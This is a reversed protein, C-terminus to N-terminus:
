SFLHNWQPDIVQPLIKKIFRWRKGVPHPLVFLEQYQSINKPFQLLFRQFFSAPTHTFTSLLYAAGARELIRRVQGQAPWAAKPTEYKGLLLPATKVAFAYGRNGISEVLQTKRKKDIVAAISRYNLAIGCYLTLKVTMERPLLALRLSPDLFDYYGERDIRNQDLIWKSLKEAARRSATLKEFTGYSFHPEIWSKHIYKAPLHNFTHILGFLEPKTRFLDVLPQRDIKLKASIM